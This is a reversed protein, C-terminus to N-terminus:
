AITKRNVFVPISDKYSILLAISCPILVLLSAQIGLFRCAFFSFAVGLHYWFLSNGFFKAKDMHAKDKSCIYEGLGLAAQRFNNTSFITSSNYGNAGHFVSWQTSMMFFIPLLGSFPDVTAPIFSLFICGLANVAIGYRQVNLKTKHSIVVYLEIGAFYLVVGLLHLLFEKLNRGLFYLVVYILNSTQASGLNGSRSLIAYAGLFGGILCMLSHLYFDSKNQNEM